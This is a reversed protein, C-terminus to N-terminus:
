AASPSANRPDPLYAMRCPDPSSYTEDVPELRELHEM